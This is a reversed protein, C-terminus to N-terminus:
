AQTRFGLVTEVMAQYQPFCIEGKGRVYPSATPCVILGKGDDFAAAILQETERRIDEPTASYMRHIQINGELCMKGRAFEKAERASIDGQPPPEFPHLVDTGMDVFGHFVRKISGHSHIHVRGGAEHLLDIIPKDYKVNFDHFDKPGHLPPVIYEEGLMSFFPGVGVGLLFKVRQVQLAMQRACLQHLIERDKISMLAFNESGCLEAVFGGPNLGLGIETIGKDGMDADLAFFSSVDGGEIQPLPLSLYKAADEATNVFFTEQLGPQGKLGVLFSRRLDGQPSHLIEIRRQFDESYSEVLTEVPYTSEFQGGWWSVKLDSYEELYAKLRDYSSDDSPYGTRSYVAPRDIEEGFYCHKLRERRTM